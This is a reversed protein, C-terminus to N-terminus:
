YLAWSLGIFYFDYYCLSLFIVDAVAVILSLLLQLMVFVLFLKTILLIDLILLLLLLPLLLLTTYYHTYDYLFFVRKRFSQQYLRLTSYTYCLKIITTFRLVFRLNAALTHQVRWFSERARKEQKKRNKHIQKNTTHM